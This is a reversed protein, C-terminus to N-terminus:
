FSFNFFCGKFYQFVQNCAKIRMPSNLMGCRRSLCYLMNGIIQIELTHKPCNKSTAVLPSARSSRSNMFLCATTLSTITWPLSAQLSWSITPSLSIFPLCTVFYLGQDQLCCVKTQQTFQNLPIGHYTTRFPLHAVLLQKVESLLRKLCLFLGKQHALFCASIAQSFASRWGLEFAFFLFLFLLLFIDGPLPFLFLSSPFFVFADGICAVVFAPFDFLSLNFSTLSMFFFLFKQLCILM